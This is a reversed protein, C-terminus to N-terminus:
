QVQNIQLEHNLPSTLPMTGRSQMNMHIKFNVINCYKGSARQSSLGTLDIKNLENLAELATALPSRVSSAQDTAAM